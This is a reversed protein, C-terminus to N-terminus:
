IKSAKRSSTMLIYSFIPGLTFTWFLMISRNLAAVLLGQAPIMKFLQSSFVIVAETIGLSGPTISILMSLATLSSIFLSQTLSIDLSFAHFVFYIILLNLSSNLLTLLFIRLVIKSDKRIKNWGELTRSIVNLIKNKYAPLQPSLVIITLLILFILVVIALIIPSFVQYSVYILGIAIIGALSNVLFIMVYNAALTSLFLSYPLKHKKKLYIARVGAGGRFPMLYNGMTTVISIGFYERFALKIGFISVVVKTFLGRVFIVALGVILLILTYGVSLQAINKFEDIHRNVYFIAWAVLLIAIMLSVYKRIRM